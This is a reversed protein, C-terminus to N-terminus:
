LYVNAFEGKKTGWKEVKIELSCGHYLRVLFPHWQKSKNEKKKNQNGTM